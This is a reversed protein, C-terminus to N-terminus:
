AKSMRLCRQENQGPLFLSAIKSFVFLRSSVALRSNIRGYKRQTDFVNIYDSLIKSDFTVPSAKIDM